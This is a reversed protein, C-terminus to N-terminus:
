GESPGTVTGPALEPPVVGKICANSRSTLGQSGLVPMAPSPDFLQTTSPVFDTVPLGRREFSGWRATCFGEIQYSILKLVVSPLYSTAPKPNAPAGPM